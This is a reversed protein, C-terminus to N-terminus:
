SQFYGHRKSQGSRRGQWSHPWNSLTYTDKNANLSNGPSTADIIGAPTASASPYYVTQIISNGEEDVGVNLEGSCVSATGSHLISCEPFNPDLCDANSSCTQLAGARLTIEYQTPQPDTASLENVPWCYIQDGCSNIIPNGFEDACVINSFIEITKYQNSVQFNAQSTVNTWTTGDAELRRITFNILDLQQPDIPENFDIIFVANRAKDRPSDNPQAQVGAPAGTQTKTIAVWDGTQSFIFTNGSTGATDATVTVGDGSAVASLGDVNNNIENALTLAVNTADDFEDVVLQNSEPDSEVFTYVTDGIRLTDSIKAAIVNITWQNGATYGVTSNLALGSGLNIVGASSTVSPNNNVNGPGWNVNATGDANITVTITADQTGVYTGSVNLGTTAPNPQTYSSSIEVQPVTRVDLEWEAAVAGIFVYDDGVSDPEPWVSSVYPPDIDLFTGIEYKWTFDGFTLATTGDAKQIDTTLTTAYWTNSDPNGLNNKPKFVFTKGDRTSAAVENAPLADNVGLAERYILVNPVSTLGVVHTALDGACPLSSCGNIITSANMSIKFTVMISTNRAVDRAFPEPYVREILGSGLNSCNICGGDPPPNGGGPPGFLANNLQGIIFSVISFASLIIVLGIAANRLTRKAFDIREPNGASTMWVFGAYLTIVIAIVGVLGLFIQIIRMITIRLDQAGLGTVAGYELGTDLTQALAPTALAFASLVFVVLAFISLTTKLKFFIKQSNNQKPFLIM